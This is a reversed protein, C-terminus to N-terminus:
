FVQVGKVVMFLLYVSSPRGLMACNPPICYVVGIPVYM